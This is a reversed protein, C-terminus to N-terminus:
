SQWRTAFIYIYGKMKYENTPFGAGHAATAAVEVDVRDSYAVFRYTFGKYNAPLSVKASEVPYPETGSADVPQMWGRVMPPFGLDHTISFTVKTGSAIPYDFTFNQQAHIPLTVFESSFMLDRPQSAKVSKGRRAVRIGSPM